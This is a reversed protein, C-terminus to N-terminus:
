KNNLYEKLLRRYILNIEQDRIHGSDKPHGTISYPDDAFDYILQNNKIRIYLNGPIGKAANLLPDIDAVRFKHMVPITDIIPLDSDSEVFSRVMQGAATSLLLAGECLVLYLCPDEGFKERDHGARAANCIKLLAKEDFIIELDTNLLGAKQLRLFHHDSKQKRLAHTKYVTAALFAENPLGDVFSSFDSGANIEQLQGALWEAAEGEFGQLRAFAIDSKNQPVSGAVLEVFNLYTYGASSTVDVGGAQDEILANLSHISSAVDYRSVEYALSAPVNAALVLRQTATQLELCGAVLSPVVLEPKLTEYM